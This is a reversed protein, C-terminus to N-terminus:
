GKVIFGLEVMHDFSAQSNLYEPEVKDGADLIGKKSTISKGAAVIWGKPEKAKVVPKEETKEEKRKANM